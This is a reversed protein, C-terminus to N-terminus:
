VAFTIRAGPGDYILVMRRLFDRGILAIYGQDKLNAGLVFSPDSDLASRDPFHVACAYEGMQTKESPTSVPTWGVPSLELRELIERDICTRTAGTDFLAYGAIPEPVFDNAETRATTLAGPMAVRVQLRPGVRELHQPSPSTGDADVFNSYFIPM